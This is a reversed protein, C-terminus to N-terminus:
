AKEPIKTTKKGMIFQKGQKTMFNDINGYGSEEAFASGPKM